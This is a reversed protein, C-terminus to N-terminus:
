QCTSQNVQTGGSGITFYCTATGGDVEVSNSFNSNYVAVSGAGIKLSIASAGLTSGHVESTGGGISIGVSTNTTTTNRVYLSALSLLGCTLNGFPSNISSDAVEVTVAGTAALGVDSFGQLNLTVHDM